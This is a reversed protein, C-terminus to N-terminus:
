MWIVGSGIQGSKTLGEMRQFGCDNQLGKRIEIEIRKPNGRM